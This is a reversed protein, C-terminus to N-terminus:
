ADHVRGQIKSVLSRPTVLRSFPQCEVDKSRRPTTPASRPGAFLLLAVLQRM